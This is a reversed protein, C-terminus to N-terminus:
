PERKPYDFEVLEASGASTEAWNNHQIDLRAVGATPINGIHSLALFNVLDTIAPNHCVLM